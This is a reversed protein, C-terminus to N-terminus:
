RVWVREVDGNTRTLRYLEGHHGGSYIDGDSGIAAAYVWYDHGTYSWNGEPEDGELDVEYVRGGGSATGHSTVVLRGNDLTVSTVNGPQEEFVWVETPEDGEPDIKHVTRQDDDGGTLDRDFESGVYIYGEDDVAIDHVRYLGWQEVSDDLSWLTEPEGDGPDVRYLDGGGDTGNGGGIFLDGEPGVAVAYPTMAEGDPDTYPEDWLAEPESGSLDLKYVGTAGTAVYLNDDASFALDRAGSGLDDYTWVPDPTSDGGPDLKHVESDDGATYLYGDDDIALANVAGHHGAYIWITEPEETGDGPDIKHVTEDSSASFVYEGDSVVALVEEDHAYQDDGGNEGTDEPEGTDDIDGADAQQNQNQNQNSDDEPDDSCGVILSLAILGVFLKSQRFKM